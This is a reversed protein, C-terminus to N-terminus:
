EESQTIMRLLQRMGWYHTAMVLCLVLIASVVVYVRYESSSPEFLLSLFGVFSLFIPQITLRLILFALYPKPLSTKNLFFFGLYGVASLLLLAACSLICVSRLSGTCELPSVLPSLIILYLVIGVFLNFHGWLRFAIPFLIHERKSFDAAKGM